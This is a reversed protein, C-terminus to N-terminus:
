YTSFHVYMNLSICQTGIDLTFVTYIKSSREVSIHDAVHSFTGDSVYAWRFGFGVCGRQGILRLQVNNPYRVSWNEEPPCAPSPDSYVPASASRLRRQACIDSPGNERTAPRGTAYPAKQYINSYLLGPRVLANVTQESVKCDVLSLHIITFEFLLARHSAEWRNLSKVISM